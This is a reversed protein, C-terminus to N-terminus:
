KTRREQPLTWYLFCWIRDKAFRGDKYYLLTRAWDGVTIKKNRFQGFDGLGGPFLWPFARTFLSNDEEYENIPEPSAYPFQFITQHSKNCQDLGDLLTNVIHADKEKPIYVSLSPLIGLVTQVEETEQPEQQLGSLTQSHCPGLDVAGPKNSMKEDNDLQNVSPPLEQENNNEMWDLNSENIEIDAYEVNYEKLWKLVKFVSTKRITFMKSAVEGGEQLYKKVVKIFHVDSPLRPLVTCLSTIDQVFSCVHGRSEIQGDKLHLLPVYASVQQIL